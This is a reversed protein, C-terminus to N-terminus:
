GPLLRLNKTIKRIREVFRAYQVSYKVKKEKEKDGTLDV